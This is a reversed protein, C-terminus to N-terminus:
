RNFRFIRMIFSFIWTLIAFGIPILIVWVEGMFAMMEPMINYLGDKIQMMAKGIGKFMTLVGDSVSKTPVVETLLNM